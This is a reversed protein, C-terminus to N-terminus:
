QKAPPAVRENQQQWPVPEVPRQGAYRGLTSRYGVAAVPTNPDSPDPGAFPSPPAAACGSLLATALLAAITSPATLL